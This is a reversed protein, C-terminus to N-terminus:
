KLSKRQLPSSDCDVGQTAITEPGAKCIKDVAPGSMVQPLLREITPWDTARYVVCPYGKLVKAMDQPGRWDRFIMRRQDWWHELWYDQSSGLSSLQGAFRGGTIYDGLQLAYSRSSAAYSFVRACSAFRDMNVSQARDRNVATERALKSVGVGQAAVLAALLVAMGPGLSRGPPKALLAEGLRWVLVFALPILVFSPIMYIANAQKAILLAHAFQSVTIGALLRIEPAPGTRRRIAFIVAVVGLIFVVHFAPRKFLKLVQLPYATLPDVPATGGYASNGQSVTMMWNFFVDYAGVAPLTFVILAALAAIGYLAMAKVGDGISDGAGALVFLPLLFVPFATIKTAVGFGAIVGFAIAFRWRRRALVGPSLSLVSVAAVMLGTALLLAEPKVHYSHKLIVMSIVPAMQLFWAALVGGFVRLGVVGVVWACAGNILIFVTSILSLSSEPDALVKAALADASAGWHSIKLILAGLWQVTTGPHYVHGPTTLNIINLSDLLYFYDPDLNFWLWAPGGQARVWFAMVMYGVPLVALSCRVWFGPTFFVKPTDQM